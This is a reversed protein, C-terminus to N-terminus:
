KEVSRNPHNTFTDEMKQLTFLSLNRSSASLARAVKKRTREAEFILKQDRDWLKVVGRQYTSLICAIAWGMAGAGLISITKKDNM